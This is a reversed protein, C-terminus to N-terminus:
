RTRYCDFHTIPQRCRSNTTFSTFWRPAPLGLDLLMLDYTQARVAAMALAGTNVWDVAYGSNKLHDSLAQAILKDDEALLIRM